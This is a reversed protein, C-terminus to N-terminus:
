IEPAFDQLEKEQSTEPDELISLDFDLEIPVPERNHDIGFAGFRILHETPYPSLRAVTSELYRYGELALYNLIRSIESVNYLIVCNAVM